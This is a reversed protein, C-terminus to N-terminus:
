GHDPHADRVMKRFRRLVESRTPDRGVRFGLLVLAWPEDHHERRPRYIAEDGTLYGILREDVAGEWRTARRLLRFVEPRARYSLRAAAYIAGLRTPAIARSHRIEM